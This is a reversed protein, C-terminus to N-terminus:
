KRWGHGGALVVALVQKAWIRHVICLGTAGGSECPQRCGLAAEARLGAPEERLRAGLLVDIGRTIKASAKKVRRRSPGLARIGGQGEMLDEVEELRMRVPMHFTCRIRGFCTSATTRVVTTAPSLSALRSLFRDCTMFMSLTM